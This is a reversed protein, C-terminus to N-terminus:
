GLRLRRHFRGGGGREGAVPLALSSSARIAPDGYILQQLKSVALPHGAAQARRYWSRAKEVDLRVGQGLEHCLAVNFLAQPFGQFAARQYFLLAQAHDQPAGHGYHFMEGLSFQAADLGQAAALRYLAVAQTETAPLLMFEGLVFQGYKSGSRSSVRALDLSVEEDMNCGVGVFYCMALVGQCHHCGSGAGEEALEFATNWDKAVGERGGIHLWAKLARSPLDGLDIARQLPVVSDACRGSACLEEAKKFFKNRVAAALGAAVRRVNFQMMKRCAGLTRQPEVHRGVGLSLLRVLRGKFGCGMARLREAHTLSMAYVPAGAFPRSVRPPSRVFSFLAVGQPSCLQALVLMWHFLKFVALLTLPVSNATALLLAPADEEELQQERQRKGAGGNVTISM